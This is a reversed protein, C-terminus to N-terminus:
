INGDFIDRMENWENAVTTETAVPKNVLKCFASDSLCKQIWVSPPVFYFTKHPVWKKKSLALDNLYGLEYGCQIGYTAHM